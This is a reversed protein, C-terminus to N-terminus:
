TRVGDGPPSFVAYHSRLARKGAAERSEWFFRVAEKAGENRAVERIADWIALPGGLAVRATAAIASIVLDTGGRKFRGMPSSKKLDADLELAARQLQAQVQADFRDVFEEPPLNPDVSSIAVALDARWRRLSEEDRRVAVVDAWKLGSLGPLDIKDLNRTAAFKEREARGKDSLLIKHLYGVFPHTAALTHGYALASCIRIGADFYPDYPRAGSAFDTMVPRHAEIWRIVGADETCANRVLAAGGEIENSYFGRRPLLVVSRDEVLPKLELFSQLYAAFAKRRETLTRGYGLEPAAIAVRSFFLLQRKVHDIAIPALSNYPHTFMASVPRIDDDAAWPQRVAGDPKLVAEGPQVQVMRTHQASDVDSLQRSFFDLQEASLGRCAPLAKEDFAVGLESTLFNEILSVYEISM